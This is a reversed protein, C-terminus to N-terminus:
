QTTNTLMCLLEEATEAVRSAGHEYLFDKGRFGWAVGIADFGCNKGTAIDVDSDGVYCGNIQSFDKNFLNQTIRQVGDPAPKVPIDKKNGAVFDFLGAFHKNCLDQSASEVKNTNVCVKVGHEKLKRVCEAIGPYPATKISCHTGYYEIFDYLVSKYEQECIDKPCAREILKPIGNGVMYKIEENTHAAFGHQELVTNCSDALDDLTNLITGDLDFVVLDYKM